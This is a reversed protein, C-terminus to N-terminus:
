GQMHRADSHLASLLQATKSGPAACMDIIWHDPQAELLLPPIM